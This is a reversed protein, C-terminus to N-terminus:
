NRNRHLYKILTSLENAIDDIETKTYYNSLDIIEFLTDVETKVYVGTLSLQNDAIDNDDSGTYTFPQINTDYITLLVQSM